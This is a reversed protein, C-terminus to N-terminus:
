KRALAEKTMHAALQARSRVGLKRYIRSLHTEITRLTVVLEGALERNSRGAAVLEAVRREMPTLEGESSARGGIRALEARAKEAWLPAGLEDFILLADELTERATRRQKARRQVRGLELLTRRREFPEPARDHQALAREFASLAVGLEGRASALLGHVREARALATPRDLERARREWPALLAAAQDLEGTAVLVELYDDLGFAMGPEGFRLEERLEVAARLEELAAPVNACSLELFGLIARQMGHAQRNGTAGAFPLSRALIARARDVEGRYAAALAQPSFATASERGCQTGIEVVADAHEAASPWRGARLEAMSLYWLAEGDFVEDRGHTSDLIRKIQACAAVFEGQWLVQHALELRPDELLFLAGSREVLRVAREATERASPRGANFEIRALRVLTTSLLFPDDALEALKVAARAHGEAAELGGTLRALDALDRRCLARIAIGEDGAERLAEDMLVMAERYDAAWSVVSALRYLAEARSLGSPEQAVAGELLTRARAMDGAEFHYEAAALCRLRSEKRDGPLTLRWAEEALEAAARPAGRTAAARAADDLARAVPADPEATGRALHRAREERDDVVGALRRHLAQRESPRLADYVGAALLPHAFRVRGAAVDIVAADVASALAAEVQQVIPRLARVTPQALASAAALARRTPEPLGGVRASVLAKLDGQVPLEEGARIEGGREVVARALELAFFPNGGSTEYLRRFLPRPFAVGIQTRLLRSIAGASLSGLRVPRVKERSLAHLLEHSAGEADTRAALLLQVPEERLRRVAFALAFASDPDLWQVDDVAVLLPRDRALKRLVGLVAAGTTRRDPPAGPADILLLAIELARRQPPSLAPLVAELVDGFLDGIGAFSLEAESAAPKAVLVRKRRELGLAVGERWVTTKGIGAEGEILLAAPGDAASGVFARLSELEDDRGIVADSM